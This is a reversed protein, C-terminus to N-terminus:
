SASRITGAGSGAGSYEHLHVPSVALVYHVDGRGHPLVQRVLNNRRQGAAHPTVMQFSSDWSKLSRM